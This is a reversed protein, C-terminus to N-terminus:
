FCKLCASNLEQVLVTDDLKIGLIVFVYRTVIINTFAVRNIPWTELM